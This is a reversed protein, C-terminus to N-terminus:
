PQPPSVERESGRARAGFEACERGCIRGPCCTLTPFVLDACFEGPDCEDSSTCQPLLLCNPTNIANLNLCRSDGETTVFCYCVDAGFGGGCQVFGDVCANPDVACIPNPIQCIGEECVEQGPCQSDFCCFATCVSDCCFPEAGGCDTDKGCETAATAPCCATTQGCGSNNIQGNSLITNCLIADGFHAGDTNARLFNADILCADRFSAGSVDADEFDAGRLNAGRFSVGQFSGQSLDADGLDADRFNCGDCNALATGAFDCDEFDKGDSPFHCEKTGFCTAPQNQDRRRGRRRKKNTNKRAETELTTGLLVAGLLSGLAVRRSGHAGFLRTLADFQNRDM